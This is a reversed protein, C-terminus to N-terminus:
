TGHPWLTMYSLCCFAFGARHRGPNDSRRTPSACGDPHAYSSLAYSSIHFLLFHHAWFAYLGIHVTGAAPIVRYLFYADPIPGPANLLVLAYGRLTIHATKIGHSVKEPTPAILGHGISFFIVIFLLFLQFFNKIKM